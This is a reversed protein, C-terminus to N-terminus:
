SSAILGHARLRALLANLQTIVDTADTADAVAAGQAGVVKTGNTYYGLTANVKGKGEDDGLANVSYTGDLLKVWDTDNLCQL